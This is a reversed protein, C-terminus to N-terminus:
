EERMWECELKADSISTKLTRGLGGLAFGRKRGLFDDMSMSIDLLVWFSQRQIRQEPYPSEVWRIIILKRQGPGTKKTIKRSDRSITTTM